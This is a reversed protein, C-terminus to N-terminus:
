QFTKVFNAWDDASSPPNLGTNESLFNIFQTEKNKENEIVNSLFAMASNISMEGVGIKNGNAKTPRPVNGIYDLMAQGFTTGVLQNDLISQSVVYPGATRPYRALLATKLQTAGTNSM